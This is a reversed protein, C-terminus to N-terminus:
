LHLQGVKFAAQWQGTKDQRTTEPPQEGGYFISRTRGRKITAQRESDNCDSEGDIDESKISIATMQSVVGERVLSWMTEADTMLKIKPHIM